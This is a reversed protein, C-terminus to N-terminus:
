QGARQRLADPDPLRFTRRGRIQLLGEEKLARLTRSLTESTLGLQRALVGQRVPLHVESPPASGPPVLGSLYRCVRGTADRLTLDEVLDVMQHLKASLGAIVRLAFEPDGRIRELFTDRDVCILLCDTLCEASAPYNGGGFVAAEALAQGPGFVHLVQERGEPSLKFVKVMGERVLYLGRAPEGASFLCTGARYRRPEFVQGLRDAEEGSLAAFLPFDRLDRAPGVGRRGAPDPDDVTGSEWGQSLPTEARSALSM